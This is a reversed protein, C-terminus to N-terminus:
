AWGSPRWRWSPAPGPLRSDATMNGKTLENFEQSVRMQREEDTERFRMLKKKVSDYVKRPETLDKSTRQAVKMENEYVKARTGKLCNSLVRLMEVDSMGSGDNAM